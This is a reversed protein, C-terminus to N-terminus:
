RAAGRDDPQGNGAPERAVEEADAEAWIDFDLDMESGVHAIRSRISDPARVLSTRAAACITEFALGYEGADLYMEVETVIAASTTGRIYAVISRLERELEDRSM